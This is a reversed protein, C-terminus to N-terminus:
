QEFYCFCDDDDHVFETKAALSRLFSRNRSRQVSALRVAACFCIWTVRCARLGCSDFGVQGIDSESDRDTSFTVAASM